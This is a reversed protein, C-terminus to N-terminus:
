TVCSLLLFPMSVLWVRKSTTNELISLREASDSMGTDM